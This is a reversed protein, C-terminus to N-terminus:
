HRGARFAIGMLTLGAGGIGALCFTVLGGYFVVRSLSYEYMPTCTEPTDQRTPVTCREFGTEFFEDSWPGPSTAVSTSPIIAIALMIISATIAKANRGGSLCDTLANSCLALLFVSGVALGFVFPGLLILFLVEFGLWTPNM